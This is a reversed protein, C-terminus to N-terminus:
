TVWNEVRLGPVRDFERRNNTVLIADLALAHAAIQTDLPGIPLGAQELVWRVRGYVRAAGLDFDAIELPELFRQLANLNRDSGSKNAEFLLEAASIASLGIGEVAHSRLAGIMSVPKHKIAYICINTDLMYHM